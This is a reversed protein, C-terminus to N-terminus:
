KLHSNRKTGRYVGDQQEPGEQRLATPIKGPGRLTIQTEGLGNVPVMAGSVLVAEGRTIHNQFLETEQLYRKNTQKNTQNNTQKIRGKKTKM